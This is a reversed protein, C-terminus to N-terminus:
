ILFGRHGRALVQPHEAFVYRGVSFIDEHRVIQEVDFGSYVYFTVKVTAADQEVHPRYDAPMPQSWTYRQPIEAPTTRSPSIEGPTDWVAEGLVAQFSWNRGHGLAFFEQLERKLISAQLYAELSADGGIAEMLDPQAIAPPAPTEVEPNIAPLEQGVPIAYVQAHGDRGWRFQYAQLRFDPLLHLKPFAPLMLAPDVPCISWGRPAEAPVQGGWLQNAQSRWRNITAQSFEMHTAM